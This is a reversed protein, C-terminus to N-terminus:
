RKIFKKSVVKNGKVVKLFYLGSPIENITIQSVAREIEYQNMVQGTLSVLYCQAGLLSTTELYLQDTVPNPYIVFDKSKSDPIGIILSRYYFGKLDLIWDTALADWAYEFRIMTEGEEGVNFNYKYWGVWSNLDANWDYWSDMTKISNENYNYERKYTAIWDDGVPDWYWNAYFLMNNNGDYARENKSSNMWDTVDWVFSISSILNDNADYDYEEKWTQTWVDINRMYGMYYDLQDTPTYFYENKQNLKWADMMWVYSETSDLLSTQNYFFVDKGWYDWDNTGLDWSAMIKTHKLNDPYYTNEEKFDPIWENADNGMWSQLLLLGGQDNHDSEDKYFNDWRDLDINWKLYTLSSEYGNEDHTM